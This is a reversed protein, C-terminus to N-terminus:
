DRVRPHTQLHSSGRPHRIIDHENEEFLPGRGLGTKSVRVELEKAQEDLANLAEPSCQVSFFCM